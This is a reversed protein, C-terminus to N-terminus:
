RGRWEVLPELKLAGSWGHTRFARNEARKSTSEYSSRPTQRSCRTSRTWSTTSRKRDNEDVDGEDERSPRGRRKDEAKAQTDPRRM